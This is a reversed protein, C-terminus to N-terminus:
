YQLIATDLFGNVIGQEAIELKEGDTNKVVGSFVANVAGRITDVSTIIVSGNIFSYRHSIDGLYDPYYNGHSTKSMAGNESLGYMGPTSGNIYLHIAEKEDYMRNTVHLWIKGPDNANLFRRITWGSENARLSGINVIGPSSEKLSSTIKRAPEKAFPDKSVATQANGFMTFGALLLISNKM